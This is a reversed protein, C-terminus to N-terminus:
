DQLVGCRAFLDVSCWYRECLGCIRSAIRVDQHSAAAGRGHGRRPCPIQRTTTPNVGPTTSGVPPRPTRRPPDTTPPHRHPHVRRHHQHQRHGLRHRSRRHHCRNHPHTNRHPRDSTRHPRHPPAKASNRLMSTSVWNSEIDEGGRAVPVQHDITPFLEWFAIHTRSMQWHTHFPFDEPLLTALTRLAGPHVLRTGSYRDLFGDRYFVRLCQRETYYRFNKVLPAFPYEARLITRGAELSDGIADAVRALVEAKELPHDSGEAAVTSPVHAADMQMHCLTRRCGQRRALMWRQSSCRHRRHCTGRRSRPRCCGPGERGCVAPGKSRLTMETVSEIRSAVCM